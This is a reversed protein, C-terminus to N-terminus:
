APSITGSIQQVNAVRRVEAEILATVTPLDDIVSAPVFLTGQYGTTTTFTLQKGPIQQGNPGFTIDPTVATVQYGIQAPMSM